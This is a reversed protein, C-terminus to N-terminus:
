RNYVWCAFDYLARKMNKEDEKTLKLLPKVKEDMYENVINEINSYIKTNCHCSCEYDAEKCSCVEETEGCTVEPTDDDETDVNQAVLWLEDIEEDYSDLLENVSKNYISKFISDYFVKMFSNAEYSERISKITSKILNYKEETLEKNNAVDEDLFYVLLKELDKERM